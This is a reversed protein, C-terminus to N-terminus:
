EVKLKKIMEARMRNKPLMGWVATEYLEKMGKKVLVQKMSKIKLGGPYGSYNKYAKNMLKKETIDTLKSNVIVVEVDAHVNRRFGTDKKGMIISAAESAVRGIKKGTADLTYVKAMNYLNL